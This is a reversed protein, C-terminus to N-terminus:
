IRIGLRYGIWWKQSAGKLTREHLPDKGILTEPSFDTAEANYHHLFHLVPGGHLSIRNTAQFGFNFNLRADIPLSEISGYLPFLSHGTAEMGIYFHHHLNKQTGLGFGSSWLDKDQSLGAAFITYFHKVGSKFSVNYETVDNYDFDLAVIEGKAFNLLGIMTGSEVQHAHNILGIQVGDLTGAHNILSIQAGSMKESANNYLGSAQFGAMEETAKNILGSFQAGQVERSQNLVGAFQAGYMYRSYNVAGSIQMGSVLKAENYGGAIQIGKLRRTINAGGTAQIGRVNRAVNAGSSLQIGDMYDRVVNAGGTIQIGASYGGVSNFLGSVQVGKMLDREANFLGGVEMGKLGRAYGGILNFSLNNTIQGSLIGNTSVGPVLSAQAVRSENIEVNKDHNKLTENIFLRTFEGIDEIAAETKEIPELMLQLFANQTKEVRIITDKYNEKSIALLLVDENQDSELSYNGQNNTLTADLNGVEYVTTNSLEEGSYADIVKGQLQFTERQKKPKVVPAQLIIIYNGRVKYEYKEGLLEDLIVSISTEKFEKSVNTKPLLDPNFAFKSKSTESLRILASEITENQLKLTVKQDLPTTDSFGMSVFFVFVLITSIRASM